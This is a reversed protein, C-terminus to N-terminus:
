MEQMLKEGKKGGILRENKNFKNKREVCRMSHIIKKERCKTVMQKNNGFFFICIWGVLLLLVFYM